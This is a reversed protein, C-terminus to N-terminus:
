NSLGLLCCWSVWVWKVLSYITKWFWLRLDIVRCTFQMALCATRQPGNMELLVASHSINYVGVKVKVILHRHGYLWISVFEFYRCKKIGCICIGFMIECYTCKRDTSHGDWLRIKITWYCLCSLSLSIQLINRTHVHPTEM